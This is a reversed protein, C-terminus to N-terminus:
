IKTPIKESWSNTSYDIIEGNLLQKIVKIPANINVGGRHALHVAMNKPPAVILWKEKIIKAKYWMYAAVRNTNLEGFHEWTKRHMLMCNSGAMANLRYGDLEGRMYKPMDKDPTILPTAVLKQDPHDILPKITTSLWNPLFEIDNCTFCLYDGSALRGGQNWAWGFYMNNKNRVYTNIVGKRTLDLLYNSDDPNGGNDIVIIETPYDTNKELSDMTVKLMESRTEFQYKARQGGFDDPLSYHCIIISVFNM